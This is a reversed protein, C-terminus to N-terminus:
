GLAQVFRPAMVPQSEPGPALAARDGRQGAAVKEDLRRPSGAGPRM